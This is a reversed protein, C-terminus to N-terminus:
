AVTVVSIRPSYTYIVTLTCTASITYLGVVSRHGSIHTYTVTLICTAIINYLGVVNRHGGTQALFAHLQSLTCTAIIRIM